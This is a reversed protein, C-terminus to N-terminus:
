PAPIFIRLPLQDALLKSIRRPHRLRHDEIDGLRDRLACTVEAEFRIQFQVPILNEQSGDCIRGDGGLQRQLRRDQPITTVGALVAVVALLRVGIVVFFPFGGQVVPCHLVALNGAM